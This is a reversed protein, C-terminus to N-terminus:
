EVATTIKKDRKVQWLKNQLYFHVYRCYYTFDNEIAVNNLVAGLINAKEGLKEKANEVDELPTFGAGIVYVLGDCKDAWNKIDDYDLIAPVDIVVRQFRSKLGPIIGGLKEEKLLEMPNEMHAGASLVSLNPVPTSTISNDLSSKGSLVDSLGKDTESTLGQDLKGKRMDADVLLTSEGARAFAIALNSAVFSKGEEYVSSTVVVIRLPNEQSASFFLSAKANRFSEAMLTDPKLHTIMNVVKDSGEEGIAPPIWGLFPMKAYYEVGTATRLTHDLYELFFCVCVGLGLGMLIIIMTSRPLPNRPVKARDTVKVGSISFYANAISTIKKPNKGRVSLAYINESGEVPSVNIMSHLKGGDELGVKRAVSEAMGRSKILELQKKKQIVFTATTTYSRASFFYDYVALIAFLVIISILINKRKRIINVFHKLTERNIM